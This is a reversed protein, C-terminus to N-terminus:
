VSRILRFDVRRQCERVTDRSCSLARAIERLGRGEALRRRIEEYRGVTMSRAGMGDEGEHSPDVTAAKPRSDELDADLATNGYKLRNKQSSDPM